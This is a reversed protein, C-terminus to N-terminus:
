TVTVTYYDNEQFTHTIGQALFAKPSAQLRYLISFAPCGYDVSYQLTGASNYIRVEMKLDNTGEYLFYLQETSYQNVITTTPKFTLFKAKTTSNILYDNTRYANFNFKDMKANFVTYTDPLTYALGLDTMIGSVYGRETFKVKYKLISKTTPAVIQALPSNIVEWKVLNQLVGSLNVYNTSIDQRSIVASSVAELVEVKFYIVDPNDSEIQFIIPNESPTYREPAKILTIM